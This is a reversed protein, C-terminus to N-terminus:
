GQDGGALEAVRGVFESMRAGLGERSGAEAYVRVIPETGSPRVMVWNRADEAIRIGDGTDSGPFEAALAAMLAPIRGAPCPVKDKATHSPPLAAAIGSLPGGASLMELALAATMCGDRVQNHRGYMFGGNEEFGVLAGEEVMRRSVEVSGVRTRVVRSGSEAAIGEIASGSNTCTVVTSGPSKGLIHRALALASRDGTLVEGREDCIMSRDGDGDFAVGLDAGSERVARSLGGLNEPTPEPGRGPFDGDIEANVLVAECGLRECLLHASVAQAGNGLDLAVRPARARIAGADVASAVAGVYEGVIGPADATSGWRGPTRTWARADYIDEVRAEDGRSLEVGDPAVPKIGGYEPPNHSATAMIGGAYGSKVALELCPTPVLGAVACDTGISNLAATVARCIAPGSHRGDYGVLVPGGGLHTGIALAMDHAMGITFGEGFVGRIGNTGFYRGM